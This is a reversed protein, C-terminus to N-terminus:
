LAAVIRAIAVVGGFFYDCDNPLWCSSSVKHLPRKCLSEKANHSQSSQLNRLAHWLYARLFCRFVMEATDSEFPPTVESSIGCWRRGTRIVQQPSRVRHCRFASWWGTDDFAAGPFHLRLRQYPLWLTQLIALAPLTM